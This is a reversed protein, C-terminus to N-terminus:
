SSIARQYVDLHRDVAVTTTAHARTARAAARGRRGAEEADLLAEDIAAAFSELEDAVWGDVGDTVQERFAPIDSVIVPRGAVMAEVVVLPYAERTSPVVVARAAEIHEQVRPPDVMGHLVVRSALGLRRALDTVLDRRPGDGLVHVATDPHRDAVLAFARVVVEPRKEAALRGVFVLDGGVPTPPGTPDPVFGPIVAVDDFGRHRLDDALHCSVAVVADARRRVLTRDLTAKARKAAGMLGASGPSGPVPGDLIGADHVTHVVARDGAFLASASLERTFNHVHVVDADLEDAAARM